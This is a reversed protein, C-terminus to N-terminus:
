AKVDVYAGYVFRDTGIEIWNGYRGWVQLTDGNHVTDIISSDASAGSRVNLASATVTATGPKYTTYKGNVFGGGINQWGGDCSGYYLYTEGQHLEKIITSDANPEKRLNLSDTNITVVGLAGINLSPESPQQPTAQSPQQPQSQIPANGGRLADLSVAYGFDCNGAGDVYTNESTQWATWATWGACDAPPVDSYKSIWLPQDNLGYIGYQDIYWKGTYIMVTRGTKEQVYNIWNRAWESLFKASLSSNYTAPYEFDLVPMLELNYKSIVSIFYDAEDQWGNSEPHAFHYAGCLIGVAQSGRINGDLTEDLVGIGETAKMYAASIGTNKVKQWDVSGTYHSVDIMKIESGNLGQM